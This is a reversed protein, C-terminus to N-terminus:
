EVWYSSRAEVVLDNRDKMRLGIAHLGAHPSAPQFSLVYRNPIDNSITLLGRELTKADKFSFYEGGTIRAVSEPINRRLGNRAAIEAIRALRLPPALLSLCDFAQVARNGKADPDADPERSMCGGAPGPESSQLKSLEHKMQSKSSSFGLSYIATNTDSIARLAEGLTSRSGDDVTESILLIARRYEPPQRRLLGVAFGLSDLIAAGSDGASLGGMREAAAGVDPTFDQVLAPAGDFGVVAVRHPVNGVLADLTAGLNRYESLHRVGSGGTEVVVVLALPQADTDQELTLKQEVGDDTVAFDDAALTFVIEGAKTKVMAPVLVLTSGVRITSPLTPDSPARAAPVQGLMVAAGCLSITVLFKMM